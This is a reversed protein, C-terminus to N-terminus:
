TEQTDDSDLKALAENIERLQRQIDMVLSRNDPPALGGKGIVTAPSQLIELQRVLSRRAEKLQERLGDGM